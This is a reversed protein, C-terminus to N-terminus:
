LRHATSCEGRHIPTPPEWDSASARMVTSLERAVRRSANTVAFVADTRRARRFSHRDHISANEFTRRADDSEVDVLASDDAASDTDNDSDHEESWPVDDPVALLDRYGDGRATNWEHIFNAVHMAGHDIEASGAPAYREGYATNVNRIADLTRRRNQCNVHVHRFGHRGDCNTSWLQIPESDRTLGGIRHNCLVCPHEFSEPDISYALARYNVALEHHLQRTKITFAQAEERKPENRIHSCDLANETLDALHILVFLYTHRLRDNREDWLAAGISREQQKDKESLYTEIVTKAESLVDTCMKVLHAAGILDNNAQQITVPYRECNQICERLYLILEVVTSMLEYILDQVDHDEKVRPTYRLRLDDSHLDPPSNVNSNELYARLALLYSIRLKERFDMKMGHFRDTKMECIDTVMINYAVYPRMAEVCLMDWLWSSNGATCEKNGIGGLHVTADEHRKLLNLFLMGHEIM